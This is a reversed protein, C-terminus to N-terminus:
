RGFASKLQGWTSERVPVACMVGCAVYGPEGGPDTEGTGLQEGCFQYAEPSCDAALLDDIRPDPIFGIVGKSGPRVTMYAVKVFGSENDAEVCGRTFTM